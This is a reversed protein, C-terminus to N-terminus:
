EYRLADIPDLRSAKWAPYYGFVVGVTLSVAFAAIVAPVSSMTPWQLITTVLMSAGRGLVIGVIGGCLCVLVAEVLFQWLIDSARAGVAMRLGIERTRETVSVLMINMIGVGGVVLSIVAVCILLSTMLESTSALTQSIETLDRIRFDDPEDEQHRHRRRLLDSAESIVSPIAEPSVASVWIDDLDFFRTMQPTDALQAASRQPYLQLQDTPYLKSLTNVQNPSSSAAAPQSTTNINRVSSLRFKVTTLPAIFFDDQDAGGMSAGKSSLVGVVRLSVNMVRVSKGIPSEGQFLERAPTQGILCVGAARLVDNDTFPVGEDLPWDRIQLFAPTTGLINRPSWNRRGYVVQSRFDVSPAAWRVSPCERLIADCDGPTLTARGGAGTSVGGVSIASPDIQVVCAGLTAITQRIARSSGQGIEVMAIVASIGIVIGLTTLGSRMKNRHLATTATRLTALSMAPLIRRLVPPETPRSFPDETRPSPKDAAIAVPNLSATAVPSNLALLQSSGNTSNSGDQDSAAHGNTNSQGSACHAEGSDSDALLIRPEPTSSPSGDDSEILGDALQITRHAFSAVKPDHTVLIITLGAANLQQFTQLIEVSTHSDLNGTPEDALVLAPLNVLSRAIAVRQQQGGSLQSPEHHQRHELGFHSLLQTAREHSEAISIREGSYHMPMRVNNVATTRALLNFNQFVFGIKSARVQARENASLESMLQGDLWFEGSTPRDLCGLINMLTTKGSGSAGMLAVMEGRRITFSVGNLVPVPIEGMQYTKRLDAVRILVPQDDSTGPEASSAIVTPHESASQLIRDLARM